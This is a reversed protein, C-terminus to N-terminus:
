AVVTMLASTAAAMCEELLDKPHQQYDVLFNERQLEAAM